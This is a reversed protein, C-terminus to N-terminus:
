KGVSRTTAGQRRRYVEEETRCQLFRHGPHCEHRRRGRCQQRRGGRGRLGRGGRQRLHRHRGVRGPARVQLLDIELCRPLEGVRADRERSRGIRVAAGRDDDNSWRAVDDVRCAAVSLNRVVEVGRELLRFHREVHARRRPRHHVSPPRWLRREGTRREVQIEDFAAIRDDDLVHHDARKADAACRAAVFFAAM